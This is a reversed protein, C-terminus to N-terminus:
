LVLFFDHRSTIITISLLRADIEVIAYISFVDLIFHSLAKKMIKTLPTDHKKKQVDDALLIAFLKQVRM